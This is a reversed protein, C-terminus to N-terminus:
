KKEQGAELTIEIKVDEGLGGGEGINFDSRKVIAEGEFGITNAPTEKGNIYAKGDVLGEYRFQMTFDKTIGKITLKGKAMYPYMGETNKTIETAEFTAKKNKEVAFFDDKKLHDDRYSNQTNISNMDLQIFIKPGEANQLNVYGSDITISGKTNSIIHKISFDLSSHAGDVLYLGNIEAINKVNAQMASDAQAKSTFTMEQGNINLKIVEQTIMKHESKAGGIGVIYPAIVLSVISMLKILINMSPGSTDKFPDGVTDGTVSAKHPESKKYFMEGNILVGKEFSKKANDWAGGANSQFIGM